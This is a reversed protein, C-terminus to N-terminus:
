GHYPAGRACAAPVCGGGSPALEHCNYTVLRMGLTTAVTAAVSRKGVGAPGKLLVALRLRLPAASPHLLPAALACVLAVAPHTAAALPLPPLADPSCTSPPAEAFAQLCAAPPAAASASGELLLRTNCDLTGSQPEASTVHFHVLRAASGVVVGHDPTGAAPPCLVTFVEGQSLLRPTLFHRHLAAELEDSTDAPPAGVLVDAPAAPERVLSVRATRVAAVSPLAVLAVAPRAAGLFARLHLALQLNFALVPSLYAVGDRLDCAVDGPRLAVVRGLRSVGSGRSTVLVHTGALLQLQRLTNLTVGVESHVDRPVGARVCRAATLDQAGGASPRRAVCRREGGVSRDGAVPVSLLEAELVGPAAAELAGHGQLLLAARQRRRSSAAM